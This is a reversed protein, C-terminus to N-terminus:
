ILMTFATAIGYQSGQPHFDLLHYGYPRAAYTPYLVLKEEGPVNAAEKAEVKNLREEDALRDEVLRAAPVAPALAEVTTSRTLSAKADRYTDVLNRIRRRIQYRSEPVPSSSPDLMNRLPM